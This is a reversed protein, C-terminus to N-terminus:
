LSSLLIVNHLDYSGIEPINFPVMGSICNLSKRLKNSYRLINFKACLVLFCFHALPGIKTCANGNCVLHAFAGIISTLDSVILEIEELVMMKGWGSRKDSVTMVCEKIIFGDQMIHAHIKCGMNKASYGGSGETLMDISHDEGSECNLGCDCLQSGLSPESEFRPILALLCFFPHIHVAMFMWIHDLFPIFKDLLYKISKFLINSANITRLVPHRIM